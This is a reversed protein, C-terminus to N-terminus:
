FIILIGFIFRDVIMIRELKYNWLKVYDICKKINWVVLLWFILKFIDYLCKNLLM